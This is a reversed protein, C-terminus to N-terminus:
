PRGHAALARGTPTDTRALKAPTGVYVVNGGDPGGGPGMEVVYDAHAILDLNHEVVVVSAGQAILKDFAVLLCAVDQMHLGVTPEDFIFLTHALSRSDTDLYTALKLRQFEGGSLTSTSQGLRIYGLGVDCLTKLPRYISRDARFFEAAEEVTFNLVDDITKGDLTVELVDSKYRKGDCEPCPMTIDNMFMMEITYTGLGECHKCRGLTSNYSFAGPTYHRQKAIPQEAFRERIGTFARTMTAVTARTSRGGSMQDMIVVDSFAEFGTVTANAMAGFEVIEESEASEMETECEDFSQQAKHMLWAQYLVDHILTSKGSGSVGVCAVFCHAPIFVSVDKLNHMMAHSINIGDGDLDVKENKLATRERERLMAGTPTDSAALGDVNGEYIIHGGNEGGCPGLEIVHDASEIVDTDHEVVVLTNGMAQLSKMVGVLKQTDQPHLGATPEDLVYLTDSLGRGLGCSLYLRQAEGGSLTKSRRDLTLYGLGVDVMTRLRLCIEEWSTLSGREEIAARDIGEFFALAESVTMPFVEGISKGAVFVNQAISAMGTGGCKECPYYGRFRALQIRSTFKNSRSELHKFYDIVGGFGMKGRSGFKIVEIQEPSLHSFPVDIPIKSLRCFSLLKAKRDATSPTRFPIIADDKISLNPQIVRTWDIGSVSGFGTCQPCAGLTSNPDFYEARLVPHEKGCRQCTMQKRFTLTTSGGSGVGLLDAHAVGAGLRYAEEIAEALREDLKPEAGDIAPSYTVRGVLVSFSKADLLSEVDAQSLDVVEGGCWLRHYGGEALAALRSAASEGPALELVVYVVIKLRVGYADLRQAIVRPTDCGVAGGCAVCRQEGMNAFFQAVHTLTETVTAVTSRAHDFSSQQRLAIAPLCHEVRDVPPKPMENLFMRVYASMSELFRRQGEAYLTDFALSSKGSGSVGTLVTMQRLPIHCDLNKLNNTRVGYLDISPRVDQNKPM